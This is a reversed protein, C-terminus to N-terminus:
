KFSKKYFNYKSIYKFYNDNFVLNQKNLKLNYIKLFFNSNWFNKNGFNKKNINFLYILYKFFFFISLNFIQKFDLFFPKEDFNKEKSNLKLGIYRFFKKLFFFFFFFFNLRKKKFFYILFFFFKNNGNVIFYQRFKIYIKNKFSELIFIIIYNFQNIFPIM